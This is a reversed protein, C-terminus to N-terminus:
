LALMAAIRCAPAIALPSAAHDGAVGAGVHDRDPRRFRFEADPELDLRVGSVGHCVEADDGLIRRLFDPFFAFGGFEIDGADVGNLGLDLVVNDGEQRMKGFDNPRFRAEHM